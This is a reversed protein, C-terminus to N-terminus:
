IIGLLRGLAALSIILGPIIAFTRLTTLWNTQKQQGVALEDGSRVNLQDLTVGQTIAEAVDKKPWLETDGRRIVSEEIKAGQGMGGAAGMIVDPLPTDAPVQYFGPNRVGGTILLRITPSVTVTQDKFLRGLFETLYGKVESRLVGHLPIEPLDPLQLVQGPGVTYNGKVPPGNPNVPVALEVYLQDGTQFDGNTLRDRIMQTEARKQAKIEAGYVPSALVKEAEALSAELEARTATPRRELSPPAQGFSRGPVGSLLALM